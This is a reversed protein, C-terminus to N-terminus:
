RRRNFRHHPTRLSERRDNLLMRLDAVNIGTAEQMQMLMSTSIQLRRDRIKKLTKEDLALTRALDADQKLNMRAILANLLKSPDYEGPTASPEADHLAYKSIKM